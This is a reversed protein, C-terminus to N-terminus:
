PKPPTPAAPRGIAKKAEAAAAKDELTRGTIDSILVPKACVRGSPDWWGRQEIECERMPRVWGFHYILIGASVTAFVAFFILKIRYIIRNM